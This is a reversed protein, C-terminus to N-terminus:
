IFFNWFVVAFIRKKRNQQNKLINISSIGNDSSILRNEEEEYKKKTKENKTTQKKWHKKLSFACQPRFFLLLVGMGM